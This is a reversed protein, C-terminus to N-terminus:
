VKVAFVKNVGGIASIAEISKKDIESDVNIVTLAEKGIENRGLSLGAININEEALIKSVTALIGPRDINSYFLLNGEPKLELLYNDINVIRLENNGIVTGAFSRKEKDSTFEVTMLNTYTSNAGSKTENIVIGMEKALFPANILNVGESLMKSLFGKLVATSLLTTSSHLLQGSYNIDIKKLQGQILQAHLVGLNEGLKIYPHIDKNVSSGLASANVAGRVPKDNFLDVMQEAIQIAVKEQAEETSAGLHPTTIIKPHQILESSFDPPESSYVDIAAGSVKGDNVAKVLDAENVIGGRACNIIKVGNKCRSLTKESILNKTEDSKPVHITIIDSQEFIEDLNVPKIGLKGAVEDSLVPDYGIVNMEFAKSRVAVERGIKGLGIVGLVKGQLETGQFNKREWKGARMSQNAQATNRCMTLMLAMTHEAASVTNGGPTNMVMIGKRTAAEIDINDVGTGARGIVEMNDMLSIIDATVKTASRVVLGNFENIVKKIEEKPMGPKYTVQHGASELISVCKTDVSDTIIIKKM